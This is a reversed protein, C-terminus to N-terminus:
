DWCLNKHVNMNGERNTLMKEKESKNQAIEAKEELM